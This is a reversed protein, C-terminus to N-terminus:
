KSHNISKNYISIYKMSIDKWNYNIVEEICNVSMNEYNLLILKIKNKMEETTHRDVPYGIYGEKYFGDIGQNKTYVVPTGQSMAEIYVLGFTESKSPMVFIDAENYIEKLKNKEKVAGLFDIKLGEKQARDIASLTDGDGKNNATRRGGGGVLTLIVNYEINLEKATEVILPVNKRAVFTGVYLLHLNEKTFTKPVGKNGIWYPDVGNPIIKLKNIIELKIVQLSSQGLVKNEYSASILIVNQAGKLIKRGFPQVYKLRKQFLNLDTDRITVIYPITYKKSLKYAVGGDTYWTHAHIFDIQKLDVQRQIDRFIKRTKLPYLARDTTYNLIASYIIKSGETKFAVENKGVRSEERVPNYVIQQIGLNDLERVLNKYVISGSYDNTIHLVKM